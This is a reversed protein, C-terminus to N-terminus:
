SVLRTHLSVVEGIRGVEPRSILYCSSTMRRLFRWCIAGTRHIARRFCVPQTQCPAYGPTDESGSHPHRGRELSSRKNLRELHWRLGTLCVLESGHRQAAGSSLQEAKGGATRSLTFRGSSEPSADQFLLRRAARLGTRYAWRSHRFRLSIASTGDTKSQWLVGEPFSVYAVRTGDKSMSLGEASIGSLYPYFQKTKPDFRVLEGRPSSGIFFIKKGDKSPLPSSSRMQGVTLEMPEKSIKQWFSGERSDGM